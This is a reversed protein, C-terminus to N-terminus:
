NSGSTIPTHNSCSFGPQDLEASRTCDVNKSNCYMQYPASFDEAKYDSRIGDAYFLGVFHNNSISKVLWGAVGGDIVQYNRNKWYVLCGSEVADIVDALTEFYKGAEFKEATIDNTDELM